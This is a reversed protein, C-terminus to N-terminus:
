RFPEIKPKSQWYAPRKEKDVANWGDNLVAYKDDLWRGDKMVARGDLYICGDKGHLMTTLDWHLDSKNGNDVKVPEGGYETYTYPHGLAMHFSGGIKEVLLGNAVHKKLHPNTGIGLEGTWRAGEDGLLFRVGRPMEMAPM